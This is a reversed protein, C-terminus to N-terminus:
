GRRPAKPLPLPLACFAHRGLRIGSDWGPLPLARAGHVPKGFFLLVLVVFHPSRLPRKSQCAGKRDKRWLARSPPFGQAKGERPLLRYLAIRLDNVHCVFM